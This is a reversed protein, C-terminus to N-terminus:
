VTISVLDDKVLMAVLLRVTEEDLQSAVADILGGISLPTSDDLREIIWRMGRPFRYTRGRDRVEIAGPHADTTLTLRPRGNLRIFFHGSRPLREPTASWPLSFSPRPKLNSGTETLYQEVLDAEFGDLLAARLRNSYCVREAADAFCPLDRDAAGGARLRDVLWTLLDIERPNKVGITLHLAPEDMPVAVHYCGRPIYLLDGPELMDDLEAGDPPVSTKQLNSRDVGEISFGYLLWRKRGDLQLIFIEQNDRHLDLGHMARWAAYVNIKTGGRFFAEFSTALRTLPEHLEDIADFSMTAGCRLHDTVDKARIRPTYGGFDAYSAPDLDCGQRALRFRRTERWHHELIRNLDTWSLLASFRDRSGRCFLHQKCWYTSLFSSVSVPALLAGLWATDSAVDPVM